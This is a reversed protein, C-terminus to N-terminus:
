EVRVVSFTFVRRAGVTRFICCQMLHEFSKLKLNCVDNLGQPFSLIGSRKEAEVIDSSSAPDYFNLDVFFFFFLGAVYIPKSPTLGSIVCHSRNIKACRGGLILFCASLQSKDKFLVGNLHQVNHHYPFMIEAARLSCKGNCPSIM